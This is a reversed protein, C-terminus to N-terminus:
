EVTDRGLCAAACVAGCLGTAALCVAIFLDGAEAGGANLQVVTLPLEMCTCFLFSLVGVAFLTHGCPLGPVLFVKALLLVLLLAASASFVRLTCGLRVAAAPVVLARQLLLWFYWALALVAAVAHPLAATQPEQAARSAFVMMWLGALMPLLAQVSNGQMVTLGALVLLAAGTLAMCLALLRNPELLAAPRVAARRSLAFVGAAALLWVAWRLPAPGTRAFGEAADWALLVDATFLVGMVLCGGLVAPAAPSRHKLM